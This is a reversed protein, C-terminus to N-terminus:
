TLQQAARNTAFTRRTWGDGFVPFTSLRRYYSIRYVGIWDLLAGIDREAADSLAKKTKPGWIGDQRVRAGTLRATAKQLRRIARPIGMNVAMDFAVLAIAPPMEDASVKEWFHFHYIRRADDLTLAKIDAKTTKGDGDIDLGISGAFRISVGFNTAGGPDSPHDVYGGEEELVHTLAQNFLVGYVSSM